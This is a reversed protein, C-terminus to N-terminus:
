RARRASGTAVARALAAAQRARLAPPALPDYEARTLRRGVLAEIAFVMWMRTNARVDDLGAVLAPLAAPDGARAFAAAATMRVYDQPHRLWALGVAYDLDGGYAAAWDPAPAIAKGWRALAATTWAISRDLHCLNCANPAGVALMRPDTPSSIRHSRVYTTLGQVLRPLHCDLCTADGPAHGSHAAQAPPPALERHCGVCVALHDARDGSGPDPGRVHPDHCDVCRIASACAGAAMALAESSNRAASGDPFRPSPASHCQACIAGLGRPDTAPGPVADPNRVVQVGRPVFSPPREDPAAAHARGGLHCSECSIGVTVLAAIPLVNDVVAPAVPALDREPGHGVGPRALRLAFPYTNHCWACRAAWPEAAAYVDVRPRAGDYEAEFWSDYYPQPYWGPRGLWWGFPLRVEVADAEGDAIGVYEQLGRSGITRTVRYRRIVGDAGRLHMTPQGRDRTFTAVGGAYPLTVDAFDGRVAAGTAAQTMTAHLGARWAAANDRHCEACRDPGVYDAATVNSAAADDLAAAATDPGRVDPVRVTPALGPSPAGRDQGRRPGGRAIVLVAAAAIAIGAVVVVAVARRTV